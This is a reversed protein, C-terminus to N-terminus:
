QATVTTVTCVKGEVRGLVETVWLSRGSHKTNSEFTITAGKAVGRTHVIHVSSTPLMSGLEVRSATAAFESAALSVGGHLMGRPNLVAPNTELALGEKVQRMGLLDNLGIDDNGRASPSTPLQGPVPQPPDAQRGRQRCQAVVRGSADLLRGTSFGAGNLVEAEGALTTPVADLEAVLDVWIETSISWAGQPLAAMVAYGLINDALVGVAGVAPRGDAGLIRRPEMSATIVSGAQRINRVDFLDDPASSVIRLKQLLDGM